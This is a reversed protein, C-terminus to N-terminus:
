DDDDEDDEDEDGDDEDKSMLLCPLLASMGTGGAGGQMLAMLMMAKSGGKKKGKMLMLPLLSTMDLGAPKDGIPTLGGAKNNALAMMAIMQGIDNKKGGGMMIFPLMGAMSANDTGFFNKVALVGKTGMLTNTVATVTTQRGSNYNLGKFTVEVEDTAAAASLFFIWTEDDTVIIDGVQLSEIPTMIAYAPIKVGFEKIPNKTVRSKKGVQEFSYIVDNELIGLRGSQLDWVIDDVEQFMSGTLSELM